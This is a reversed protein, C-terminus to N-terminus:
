SISNAVKRVFGSKYLRNLLLVNHYSSKFDGNILKRNIRNLFKNDLNEDFGIKRQFKDLRKLVDKIEKKTGDMAIARKLTGEVRGKMHHNIDELDYRKFLNYISCYSNLFDVASKYTILSLSSDRYIHEYGIFDSIYFISESNLFFELTFLSDENIMDEVFYIDNDKIISKRYIKNWIISEKISLLRHGEYLGDGNCVRNEHTDFVELYCCAVADFDGEIAKDYVRRCFDPTYVDDNDIFMLYDASALNIGVNRGFGPFGHNEDSFFPIINDYKDSYENIIDCSNDTSNDDVLILEINEFGFTQNVISDIAEGITDEANYVPMIVSIKYKM